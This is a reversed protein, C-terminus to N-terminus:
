FKVILNLLRVVFVVILLWIWQKWMVTRAEAMIADNLGHERWIITLNVVNLCTVGHYVMAYLICININLNEYEWKNM